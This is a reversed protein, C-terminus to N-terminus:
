LPQAHFWIQNNTRFILCVLSFSYLYFSFFSFIIGFSRHYGDDDEDDDGDDDDDDDDDDGHDVQAPRAKHLVATIWSVPQVPPDM